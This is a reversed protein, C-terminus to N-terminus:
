CDRIIGGGGALGPSGLASGDTNLKSWMAQSKTWGVSIRRTRTVNAHDLVCFFFEAVQNEVARRLSFPFPRAFLRKNRFLWLNWIGFLFFTAWQQDKSPM